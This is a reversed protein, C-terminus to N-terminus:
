FNIQGLGRKAVCRVNLWPHPWSPCGAPWKKFYPSVARLNCGFNTKNKLLQAREGTCCYPLPKSSRAPLVAAPSQRPGAILALAVLLEASSFRTSMRHRGETREHRHFLGRRNALFCLFAEPYVTM